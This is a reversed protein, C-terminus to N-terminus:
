KKKSSLECFGVIWCMPCGKFLVLAIIWLPITYLYYASYVKGIFISIGILSIAILGKLIHIGVAHDYKM